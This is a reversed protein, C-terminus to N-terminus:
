FKNSIFSQIKKEVNKGISNQSILFNTKLDNESVINSDLLTLSHIGSLVLNKAIEAGVGQM